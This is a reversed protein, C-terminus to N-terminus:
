AGAGRGTELTARSELSTLLQRLCEDPVSELVQVLVQLYAYIRQDDSEVGPNDHVLQRWAEDMVQKVLPRSPEPLVIEPPEVETSDEEIGAVLRGILEGLEQPIERPDSRRPSPEEAPENFQNLFQSLDDSM